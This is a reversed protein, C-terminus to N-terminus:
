IYHLLISQNIEFVLLNLKMRDGTSTRQVLVVNTSSSERKCSPYTLTDLFALRLRAGAAAPGGARM